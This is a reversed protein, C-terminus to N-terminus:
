TRSRRITFRALTLLTFALLWWPNFAGGGGRERSSASGGPGAIPPNVRADRQQDELPIQALEPRESGASAVLAGTASDFLDIQVDSRFLTTYPFLPSASL